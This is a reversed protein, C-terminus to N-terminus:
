LSPANITIKEKRIEFSFDTDFSIIKLIDNLTLDNTKFTGTFKQKELFPYNIEIVMNYSRELKAVLNKFDTDKFVLEGKIWSICDAPYIDTINSLQKEKDWKYAFGPSLSVTDKIQNKEKIVKISGELLSAQTINDNPYAMINFKTGTVLIDLLATKVYFPRGFDQKVEFYAEGTLIVERDNKEEFYSPYTLSSGSNLHILTGDELIVEFTKGLPVNITHIERTNRNTNHSYELQNDTLTAQHRNNLKLVQNGTNEPIIINKGNQFSITILNQNEPGQIEKNANFFIGGIALFLILVAAYKFYNKYNINETTKFGIEKKIKILEKTDYKHNSNIAWSQKLRIFTQRNKESKNIWELLQTTERENSKFRLYKYILKNIV